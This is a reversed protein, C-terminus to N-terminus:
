ADKRTLFWAILVISALGTVGKLFSQSVQTADAAANLDGVTFWWVAGIGLVALIRVIWRFVKM